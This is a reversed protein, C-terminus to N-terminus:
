PTLHPPLLQGTVALSDAINIWLNFLNPHNILQAIYACFEGVPGEFVKM